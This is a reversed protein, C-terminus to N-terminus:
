EPKKSISFMWVALLLPVTFGLISFRLPINFHGITVPIRLVVRVLHLISVLLFIAASVRLALNKM